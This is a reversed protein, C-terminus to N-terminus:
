VGRVQHKSSCVNLMFCINDTLPLWNELTFTLYTVRRSHQNNWLGRVHLIARFVQRRLLRWTSQTTEQDAPETTHHHFPFTACTNVSLRTREMWWLTPPLAATRTNAEKLIMFIFYSTHRVIPIIAVNSRPRETTLDNQVVYGSIYGTCRKAM